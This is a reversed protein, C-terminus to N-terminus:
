GGIRWINGFVISDTDSSVLRIRKIEAAAIGFSNFPVKITSYLITNPTAIANVGIKCVPGLTQLFETFEGPNMIKPEIESRKSFCENAMNNVAYLLRFPSAPDVFNGVTGFSKVDIQKSLTGDILEFEIGFDLDAKESCETDTLCFKWQSVPVEIGFDNNNMKLPLSVTANKGSWLVLPTFDETGSQEIMLTINYDIQVGDPVFRTLDGLGSWTSLLDPMKNEQTLRHFEGSVTSIKTNSDKLFLDERAKVVMTSTRQDRTEVMVLVNDPASVDRLDVDKGDLIGTFFADIYALLVKEQRKSEKDGFIYLANPCAYQDGDNKDWNTNFFNHNAGRVAVISKRNEKPDLSESRRYVRSGMFNVVDGDCSGTMMAWPVGTLDIKLTDTPAVEFVARVGEGGYIQKNFTNKFLRVAEGGRSHGMAFIQSIDISNLIDIGEIESLRNSFEEITKIILNTRGELDLQDSLFIGTTKKMSHISNFSPTLVAFGKSILHLALYEYGLDSKIETQGQKCISSNPEGTQAPRCYLSNGHVLIALPLKLGVQHNDPL